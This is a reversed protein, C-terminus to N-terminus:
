FSGQRPNEIVYAKLEPSVSKDGVVGQASSGPSLRAVLQLDDRRLAVADLPELDYRQFLGRFHEVNISVYLVGNFRGNLKMARVFAIVWNGSVRSKLPGAVVAAGERLRAQQFYDRDAVQVPMGPPLATGWRVNGRDDTLRFAEIDSLLRFRGQLVENLVGAPAGAQQLREVEAATARIVADIRGIESEVNLKAVAALGASVDRAQQEYSRRSADLVQWVMLALLAAIAVNALLLRITMRRRRHMSRDVFVQPDTLPMAPLCDLAAHCRM